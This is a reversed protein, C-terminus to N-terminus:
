KILSGKLAILSIKHEDEASQKWGKFVGEGSFDISPLTAWFKVGQYFVCVRIKDKLEEYFIIRDGTAKALALVDLSGYLPIEEM